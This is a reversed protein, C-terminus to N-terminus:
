TRSGREGGRESSIARLIIDDRTARGTTKRPRRKITAVHPRLTFGRSVDVGGEGGGVGGWGVREGVGVVGVVVVVGTVGLFLSL